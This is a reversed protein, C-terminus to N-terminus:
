VLVPTRVGVDDSGHMAYIGELQERWMPPEQREVRQAGRSNAGSEVQISTVRCKTSCLRGHIVSVAVPAVVKKEARGYLGAAGRLARARV